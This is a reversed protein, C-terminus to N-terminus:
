MIITLQSSACCLTLAVTECAHVAVFCFFFRFRRLCCVNGQLLLYYRTIVLTPPLPLPVERDSVYMERVLFHSSLSRGLAPAETSRDTLVAADFGHLGPATSRAAHM